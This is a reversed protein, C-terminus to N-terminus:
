RGAMFTAQQVLGLEVLHEYALRIQEPAFLAQKRPSWGQVRDIVVNIDIPLPPLSAAFHVSSLLEIGFPFQFGQIIAEFRGIASSFDDDNRLIREAETVSEDDLTLTAKAGGTGDGYGEIFHGELNSLANDLSKAYPGYHGQSFRLRLPWGAVQLFYAVKHAELAALKPEVALGADISSKMYSNLALILAARLRTMGPRKTRIPMDKAAPAGNPSYLLVDLGDLGELAEVILPRVEEWQLGGNGCGLPPVAISEIGLRRIERALDVLGSRIDGLRSSGRWHRKTPFNIIYKPKGIQSTEYVLVTGIKVRGERCAKSYYTFNDPYARKFQLAIGKGMIGVTNVTNVIADVNAELLNGNVLRIM